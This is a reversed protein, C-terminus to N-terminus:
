FRNSAIFKTYSKGSRQLQSIFDAIGADTQAEQKAEEARLKAERAERRAARKASKENYIKMLRAHEERVNPPQYNQQQRDPHFQHKVRQGNVDYVKEGFERPIPEPEDVGRDRYPDLKPNYQYDTGFYIWIDYVYNSGDKLLYANYEALESPNVRGLTKTHLDCHEILVKYMRRQIQQFVEPPMPLERMAVSERESAVFMLNYIDSDLVNCNIHHLFRENSGIIDAERYGYFAMMVLVDIRKTVYGGQGNTRKLDCVKYGQPGVYGAGVSLVKYNQLPDSTRVRGKTSVEIFEIGEMLVARWLEGYAKEPLHKGHGAWTWLFGYAGSGRPGADCARRINSKGGSRINSALDDDFADVEELLCKYADRLSFFTTCPFHKEYGYPRRWMTVPKGLGKKQYTMGQKTSNKDGWELNDIHVAAGVRQKGTQIAISSPKPPPGKFLELLLRNASPQARNDLSGFSLIYGGRASNYSGRTREGTEHNLREGDKTISYGYFLPGFMNLPYLQLPPMPNAHIKDIEERPKGEQEATTIEQYKASFYHAHYVREIEAATWREDPGTYAVSVGGILIRKEPEM